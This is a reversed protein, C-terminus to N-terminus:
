RRFLTIGDAITEEVRIDASKEPPIQLPDASLIILNERMGPRLAGTQAEEFYQRAANRTVARLASLVDIREDAGLTKGSKTKRTVACRVTELMDPFVVPSDQHLTFPIGKNLASRLPSIKEARERGLNSLHVDGWYYVHAVFFSPLIGARRVDDLQDTGLLQAHIMVPRTTPSGFRLQADIFAQAARDGNCHVLLQLNRETCFRVTEELEEKTVSPYGCYGNPDPRGNEDLYPKRLWATRGQPSGDSILKVGGVRFNGRPEKRPSRAPGNKRESENQGDLTRPFAEAYASFDERGPYAVVEARLKGARLLAQYLPLLEAVALGEQILVIGNSFYLEQARDFADLLKNADPPPIKKLRTVFDTEEMYGTPTGDSGKEILGGEASPTDAGVGLAQLAAGNFVGMHGSTYQLVLPNEPAVADLERATLRRGEPEYDSAALWEGKKLQKERLFRSIEKLVADPTGIGSLSLQLQRHAVASLHSHPDLFAPMLARGHLDIRQVDGSLVPPEGRGTGLIKGDEAILYDAPLPSDLTLIHGNQYIRKAM